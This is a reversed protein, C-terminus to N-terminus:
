IKGPNKPFVTGDSLNYIVDAIKAVEQTRHSSILVTRGSDSIKKCIKLFVTRSDADLSEFPEDFILIKVPMILARILAVKQKQGGSLQEISKNEIDEKEILRLLSKAKSYDKIKGSSKLGLMINDKATGRFLYPSQHVMTVFQKRILRDSKESLYATKGFVTIQGTKPKFLLAISRLLTSKGAGNEGSLVVISSPAIDMSAISLKWNKGYSLTLNKLEIAKQVM